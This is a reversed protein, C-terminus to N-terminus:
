KKVSLTSTDDDDNKPNSTSTSDRTTPSKLISVPTSTTSTTDAHKRKKNKKKSKKEAGKAKNIGITTRDDMLNILAAPKLSPEVEIATSTAETISTTKKKQILAETLGVAEEKNLRESYKNM